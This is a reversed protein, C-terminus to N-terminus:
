MLFQHKIFYFSSDTLFKTYSISLLKCSYLGKLLFYHNGRLTNSMMEKLTMERLGLRGWTINMFPGILSRQTLLFIAVVQCYTGNSEPNKEACSTM